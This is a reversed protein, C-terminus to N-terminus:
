RRSTTAVPEPKTTTTAWRCSRAWGAGSRDAVADLRRPHRRVLPACRDRPRARPADRPLALVSGLAVGRDGHQQRARPAHYRLTQKPYGAVAVDVGVDHNPKQLSRYLILYENGLRFGLNAFLPKLDSTTHAVALTGGTQSAIEDLNDRNFAKSELGVPFVRIHDDELRKIVLQRARGASRPATSLLVISGARAGDALLQIRAVALADDINTGEGLAPPKSLAAQIKALDRTPALRVVSTKNFMIVGIKANAPKKAAFARGAAMASTIPGGKMSNSADILLITTAGGAAAGAPVVSLSDVPRGNETVKVQATKLSQRKPLTLVYARDPFAGPNAEAVTPASGAATAQTAFVAAIGALGALTLARRM